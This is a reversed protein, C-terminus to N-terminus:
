QFVHHALNWLSTVGHTITDAVQVAQLEDPISVAIKVSIEFAQEDHSLRFAQKDNTVAVAIEISFCVTVDHNTAVHSFCYAANRRCLRV